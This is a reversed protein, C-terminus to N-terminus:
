VACQIYMANKRIELAKQQKAVHLGTVTVVGISWVVEISRVAGVIIDEKDTELARVNATPTTASKINFADETEEWPVLFYKKQTKMCEPAAAWGHTM